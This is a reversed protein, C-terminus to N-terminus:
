LLAKKLETEKGTVRRGRHDRTKRHILYCFPINCIYIYIENYIVINNKKAMTAHGVTKGSYGNSCLCESVEVVKRKEEM